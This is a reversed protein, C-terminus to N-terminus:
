MPDNAESAEAAQRIAALCHDLHGDTLAHGADPLLRASALPGIGNIRDVLQVPDFAKSDAGALVRVPVTISRLQEDTLVPIPPVKVPHGRQAQLLLATEQKDVILPQRLREALRQRVPGPTFSALACRISWGM